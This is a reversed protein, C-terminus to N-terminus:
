KYLRFCRILRSRRTSWSTRRANAPIVLPTADMEWKVIGQLTLLGDRTFCRFQRSDDRIPYVRHVLCIDSNVFVEVVSRDVFLDLSLHEADGLRYPIMQRQQTTQADVRRPYELTRDNSAKEFDVIFVQDFVHVLTELSHVFAELIEGALHVM